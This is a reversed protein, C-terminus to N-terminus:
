LEWSPGLPFLCAKNQKEIQHAVRNVLSRMIRLESETSILPIM